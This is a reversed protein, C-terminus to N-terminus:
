SNELRAHTQHPIAAHAHIHIKAQSRVHKYEHWEIMEPRMIVQREPRRNPSCAVQEPDAEHDIVIAENASTKHHAPDTTCPHRGQGMVINTHFREVNAVFVDGAGPFDFMGMRRRHMPCHHMARIKVASVQMSSCHVMAPWRHAMIIRPTAAAAATKAPVMVLMVAM